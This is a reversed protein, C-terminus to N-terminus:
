WPIPTIHSKALTCLEGCEVIVFEKKPANGHKSGASNIREVVDYGGLVLAFVQPTYDGSSVHITFNPSEKNPGYAISSLAGRWAGTGVFETPLYHPNFGPVDHTMERGDGFILCHRPVIASLHMGRFSDGRGGNGTCRRHFYECYHPCNENLLGIVIRGIDVGNETVDFYVVSGVRLDPPMHDVGRLMRESSIQTRYFVYLVILLLIFMGLRIATMIIAYQRAHEECWAMMVLELDTLIRQPLPVEEILTLPLRKVRVVANCGNDRAVVAGSRFQGSAAGIWRPSSASCMRVRQHFLSTGALCPQPILEDGITRFASFRRTAHAVCYIPM